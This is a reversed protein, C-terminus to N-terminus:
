LCSRAPAGDLKFYGPQLTQFVGTPDYYAAVAMLKLQNEPGYSAIVDQYQSAYNQYVYRHDVGMAAARANVREVINSSARMVAYDDAANNWMNNLNMLLLPGDAESLGLANGGRKSMHSLQPSTIVQLTCAPVIGSVNVLTDIEDMYIDLVANILDRDLKYASAWYTERLGSPNSENFEVTLNSLTRIMTTNSLPDPISTFNEFVPPSSIPDAYQMDLKAFYDGGAWAFSLILGAKPDEEGHAGFQAFAEIIASRQSIKHLQGGGWMLGQPFTSLDFRTVVGFNNGGGRLSWYLDPYSTENVQLVVGSGTVLRSCGPDYCDEALVTAHHVDAAILLSSARTLRAAKPHCSAASALVKTVFVEYNVVNDCAWGYLGSFFSIGGGLTLGGVGIASVRGGIVALDHPELAEYVDVWKNGTGVSVISKDDSLQVQNLERLDLTIGGQINSSGAFASHGGSKVAFPCRFLRSFLIARSVDRTDQPRFICDPHVDAQQVSWYGSQCSSYNASGPEAVSDGYLFALVSCAAACFNFDGLAADAASLRLAHTPIRDFQLGQDALAARPDFTAPEFSHSLGCQLVSALAMTLLLSSRM